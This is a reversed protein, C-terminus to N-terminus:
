RVEWHEEEHEASRPELHTIVRGEPELSAALDAEVSTAIAHAEHVSMEDPFVLHLEVWHM